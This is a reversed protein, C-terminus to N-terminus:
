SLILLAQMIQSQWKKVDEEVVSGRGGRRWRRWFSRSPVAVSPEREPARLAPVRDVFYGSPPLFLSPGGAKIDTAVKECEIESALLSSLVDLAEWWITLFCGVPDLFDVDPCEDLPFPIVVEFFCIRVGANVAANNM